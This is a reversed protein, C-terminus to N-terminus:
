ALHSSNLRTSKRDLPAPTGRGVVAFSAICWLALVGGGIAIAMGMVQPAGIAEPPVLGSPSLLQAPLFVLVLGIFLAAYTVARVLVFM